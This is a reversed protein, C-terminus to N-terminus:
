ITHPGQELMTMLAKTVNDDHDHTNSIQRQLNVDLIQIFLNDPLMKIDENDM